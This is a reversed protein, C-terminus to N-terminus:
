WDVARLATETEIDDKVYKVKICGLERLEKQVLALMLNASLIRDDIYKNKVKNIKRDCRLRALKMGKTVDFEDEPSCISIGRYTKGAYHSLCIVKKVTENNVIRYKYRKEDITYDEAM